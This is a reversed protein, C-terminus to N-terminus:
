WSDVGLEVRTAPLQDPRPGTGVRRRVWKGPEEARSGPGLVHWCLPGLEQVVLRVKQADKRVDATLHVPAVLRFGEDKWDFAGPAFERDIREADGRLRSVDLLMDKEPFM